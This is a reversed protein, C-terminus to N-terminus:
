VPTTASKQAGLQPDGHGSGGCQADAGLFLFEGNGVDHQGRQHHRHDAQHDHRQRGPQEVQEDGRVQGEADGDQEHGEVDAVGELDRGKGGEQQERGQHSQREVDRRRAQDQELGVSAVHDAREAVEHHAAVVHDAATIKRIRVMMWNTTM